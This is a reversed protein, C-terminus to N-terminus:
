DTSPHGLNSCPRSPLDSGHHTGDSVIITDSTIRYRRCHSNHLLFPSYETTYRYSRNIDPELISFPPLLTTALPAVLYILCMYLRTTHALKLLSAYYTQVSNCTLCRQARNTEPHTVLTPAPAVPYTASITPVM